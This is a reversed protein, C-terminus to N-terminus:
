ATQAYSRTVNDSPLSERLFSIIPRTCRADNVLDAHGRGPVILRRVRSKESSRYLLELDSYPVYRDADGHILMIPDSIRAIRTRPSLDELTTGVWSELIGRVLRPFPWSPVHLWTLFARTMVDIDAFASAAVVARIRSDESAAVLASSGGLSHGIVGLATLDVEPRTELYDVAALIDDSFKRLTIPGDSSSVGHGRSDFALVGFDAESVMSALPLMSAANDSWGHALIVAPRPTRGSRSPIFWGHLKEGSSRFAVHEFFLDYDRPTEFSIKREPTCWKRALVWSFILALAAISVLGSLVILFISTLPM